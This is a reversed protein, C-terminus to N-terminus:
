NWFGLPRNPRSAPQRGAGRVDLSIAPGYVEQLDTLGIGNEFDSETWPQGYRMDGPERRSPPDETDIVRWQTAPNLVSAPPKRVRAPKIPDVPLKIGSSCFCKFAWPTSNTTSASSLVVPGALKITISGSPM